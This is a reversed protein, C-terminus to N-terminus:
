VDTKATRGAPRRRDAGGSWEAELYATRAAKLVPQGGRLGRKHGGQGIMQAAFASGGSGNAAAAPPTNTVLAKSKRRDSAQRRDSKRRADKRREVGQVPDIPDSM